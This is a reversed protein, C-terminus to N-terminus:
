SRESGFSRAARLLSVATYVVVVAVLWKVTKLPLDKVIFAAVLVAPVGGLALGASAAPAFSKTRLFPISGFSQLFACSGMMIPFGAKPNMGLLSVLVLCPAYLGVGITMLAGFLFNACVAFAFASGDLGLKVGDSRLGIQRWILIATVVLLASGLGIQVKRRPLRAVIPAGLLAGLTAAAVMAVLTKPDVDIKDIFIFAEAFTPITHGVNLTGPLLRDDFAAGASPSLAKRARYFTTTTAFSGIGLTDFFNTIAGVFTEYASPVIREGRERALWLARLFTLAHVFFAVGLATFLTTKTM